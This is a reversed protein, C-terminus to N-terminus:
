NDRQEIKTESQKARNGDRKIFSRSELQLM